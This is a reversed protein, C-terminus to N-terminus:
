PDKILFTTEIPILFPETSVISVTSVTSVTSATSATIATSATSAVLIEAIKKYETNHYKESYQLLITRFEASVLTAFYKDGIKVPIKVYRTYQHGPKDENVISFNYSLTSLFDKICWCELRIWGDHWVNVYCSLKDVIITCMKILDNNCVYRIVQANFLQIQASDLTGYKANNIFACNSSPNM